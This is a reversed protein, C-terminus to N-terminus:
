CLKSKFNGPRMGCVNQSKEVNGFYEAAYSVQNTEHVYTTLALWAPSPTFIVL